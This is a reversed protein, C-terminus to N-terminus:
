ILLTVIHVWKIDVPGGLSLIAKQRNGGGSSERRRQTSGYRRREWQAALQETFAPVTRGMESSDETGQLRGPM